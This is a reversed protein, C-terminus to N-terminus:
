TNNIYLIKFEKPFSVENVLERKYLKDCPGIHIVRNKHGYKLLYNELAQINNFNKTNNKNNILERGEEFEEYKCISIDSNNKILSNYIEYYM